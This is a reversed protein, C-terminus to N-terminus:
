TGDRDFEATGTTVSLMPSPRSLPIRQAGIPRMGGPHRHLAILRSIQTISVDKSKLTQLEARLM